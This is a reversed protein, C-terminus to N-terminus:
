RLGDSARNPMDPRELLLANQRWCVRPPFDTTVAAPPQIAGFVDEGDCLDGDFLSDNGASRHVIQASEALTYPGRM